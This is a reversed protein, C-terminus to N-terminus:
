LVQNDKHERHRKKATHADQSPPSLLHHQHYLLLKLLLLHVCVWAIAKTEAERHLFIRHPLALWKAKAPMQQFVINKQNKKERPRKKQQANKKKTNKRIKAICAFVSFVFAFM